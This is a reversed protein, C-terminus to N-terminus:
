PQGNFNAKANGIVGSSGPVIKETERKISSAFMPSTKRKRKRLKFVTM